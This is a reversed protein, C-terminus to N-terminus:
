LAEYISKILSKPCYGLIDISIKEAEEKSMNENVIYNRFVNEKEKYPYSSLLVGVITRLQLDKFDDSQKRGLGVRTSHLIISKNERDRCDEAAEKLVFEKELTKYDVNKDEIIFKLINNPGFKTTGDDFKASRILIGYYVNVDDSLCIDVGGRTGGKIKSDETIGTRHVYFRGYNNKQLKNGHVSEDNFKSDKFYAEVEIPYIRLGNSLEFMYNTVILKNIVQLQKEIEKFGSCQMLIAIEKKLTDM